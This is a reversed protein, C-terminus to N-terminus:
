KRAVARHKGSSQAMIRAKTDDVGYRVCNDFWRDFFIKTDAGHLSACLTEAAQRIRSDLVRSDDPRSLDLDGYHITVAPGAQAASLTLALIAATTSMRFM